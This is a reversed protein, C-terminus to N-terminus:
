ATAAPWEAHFRAGTNDEAEARFPAAPDPRFRFRLQPNEALSIGGELAILPREGQWLRLRTIFHAPIYLRTIQDMQMGSNNPHRIMIRAERLGAPTDPADPLLRLRMTGPPPGGAAVTAAPASCGGAAKVFRSVALLAGDDREAVAHINTYDDVRVRTALRDIGSDPGFEVTAALPSPNQDILLTVRRLAPATLAIGVPVLAADEARYPADLALAAAGDGIPRGDFVQAALAPWPDAPVPTQAAAARALLPALAAGAAAHLAQRRTHMTM